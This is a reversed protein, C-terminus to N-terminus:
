NVSIFVVIPPTDVLTSFKSSSVLVNNSIVSLPTYISTPDSPELVNTSTFLLLKLILVSFM